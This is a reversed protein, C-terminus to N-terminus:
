MHGFQGAKVNLADMCANNWEVLKKAGEGKGKSALCAAKYDAMTPFEKVFLERLKLVRDLFSVELQLVENDMNGLLVLERWWHELPEVFFYGFAPWCSWKPPAEQYGPLRQEDVM